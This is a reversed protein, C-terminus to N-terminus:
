VCSLWLEIESCINPNGGARTSMEQKAKEIKKGKGLPVV